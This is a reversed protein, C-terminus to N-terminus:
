PELAPITVEVTTGSPGSATRISGHMQAVLGEMIRSGLNPGATQSATDFGKGDDTFTLRYDSGASELSIRINGSQGEGFAHKSTNMMLEAVLLSVLMARERSLKVASPKVECIIAEAGSADKIDQCLERLLSTAEVQDMEPSYLRRNIKSMIEFRRQATVIVDLAVAPDREVARRNQQLLAAVRQLNNATRHQLERFLEASLDREAELAKFTENLGRMLLLLITSTAAYLVVTLQGTPYELAFTRRPPLWLYWAALGGIIAAVIGAARGGVLSCIVIAPFLTVYPIKIFPDVTERLGLAVALVIAAFM